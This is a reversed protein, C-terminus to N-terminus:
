QGFAQDFMLRAAEKLDAHDEGDVGVAMLRPEGILGYVGEPVYVVVGTEHCHFVVAGEVV